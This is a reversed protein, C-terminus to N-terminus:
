FIRVIKVWCSVRPVTVASCEPVGFPERNFPVVLDHLLPGLGVDKSVAGDIVERCFRAGGFWARRFAVLTSGTPSVLRECANKTHKSEKDM